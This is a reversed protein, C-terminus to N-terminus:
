QGQEDRIKKCDACMPLISQLERVRGLATNLKHHQNLSRATLSLQLWIVPGGVATAILLDSYFWGPYMKIGQIVDYYLYDYFTATFIAVFVLIITSVRVGYRTTMAELLNLMQM